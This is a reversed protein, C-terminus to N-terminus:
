LSRRGVILTALAIMAIAFGGTEALPLLSAEIERSLL